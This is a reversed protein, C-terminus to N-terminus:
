QRRAEPRQPLWLKFQCTTDRQEEENFTADGTFNQSIGMMLKCIPKQSSASSAKHENYSYNPPTCFFENSPPFLMTSSKDSKQDEFWLSGVTNQSTTGSNEVAM